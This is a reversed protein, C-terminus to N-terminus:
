GIRILMQNSEARVNSSLIDPRTTQEIFWALQYARPSVARSRSAESLIFQARERLTGIYRSGIQREASQLGAAIARSRTRDDLLMEQAGGAHREPVHKAQESFQWDCTEVTQERNSL